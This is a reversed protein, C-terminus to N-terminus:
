EDKESPLNKCGPEGYQSEMARVAQPIVQWSQGAGFESRFVDILEKFYLNSRAMSACTSTALIEADALDHIYAFALTEVQNLHKRALNWKYYLQPDTKPERAVRLFSRAEERSLPMRIDRKWREPFEEIIAEREDESVSQEAQTLFTLTRQLRNTREQDLYALAAVGLTVASIVTAVATITDTTRKFTGSPSGDEQSM